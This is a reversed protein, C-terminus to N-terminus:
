RGYREHELHSVIGPLRHYGLQVAVRGFTQVWRWGRRFDAGNAAEMCLAIDLGNMPKEKNREDHYAQLQRAVARRAMEMRRANTPPVKM